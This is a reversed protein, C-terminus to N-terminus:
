VEDELMEKNDIINGIIEWNTTKWDSMFDTNGDSIGSIKANRAVRTYLGFSPCDDFWIVEAIYNHEGDSLYPYMFGNLIDGEFVKKKNKDTRGTFQGVTEPDVELFEVQRPMNWDAFATKLIYYKSKEPIYNESVLCQLPPEHVYLYGYVWGHIKNKGRFLIEREM